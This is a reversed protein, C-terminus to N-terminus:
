QPSFHATFDAPMHKKIRCNREANGLCRLVQQRDIKDPPLASIAQALAEM